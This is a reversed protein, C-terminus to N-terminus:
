GVTILMVGVVTAGIGLYQALSLREHHIRWALIVTVVPFLSGLVSVLSLMGLAAASTYLVNASADLVGTAAIFPVDKKGLGGSKRVVLAIVALLSVQTVRMM